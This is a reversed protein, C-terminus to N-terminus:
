FMRNPDCCGWHAAGHFLYSTSRGVLLDAYGGSNREGAAAVGIKSANFYGDADVVIAIALDLLSRRFICRKPIGIGDCRETAQPYTNNDDCDGGQESYGDNDCDNEPEDVGSTKQEAGRCVLPSCILVFCM